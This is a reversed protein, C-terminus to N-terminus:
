IRGYLQNTWNYFYKFFVPDGEPMQIQITIWITDYSTIAVTITLSKAIGDEVMWALALEAYQRAQEAVEAQTKSRQLLWLKSGIERDGWWGERSNSNDPLIDTADARANTFLSIVVATELGPERVFDGDSIATDFYEMGYLLKVDGGEVEAEAPSVYEYIRYLGNKGAVFIKGDLELMSTFGGYSIESVLTTLIGTHIDYKAVGGSSYLIYIQNAYHLVSHVHGTIGAPRDALKTWDNTGNWKFLYGDPRTGAYISDVSDKAITAIETQGLYEATAIVDRWGLVSGDWEYLKARYATPSYFKIGVSLLYHIVQEALIPLVVNLSSGVLRYLRGLDGSGVYLTGAYVGVSFLRDGGVSAVAVWAGTGGKSVSPTAANWRYLTGNNGAGYIVGGFVCLDTKFTPGADAVLVMTSSAGNWEWLRGTSGSLYVKGGLALGFSTGESQFPSDFGACLVAYGSM